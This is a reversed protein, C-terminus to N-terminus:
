RPLPRRIRFDRERSRGSSRRHVQRVQAASMFTRALRRVGFSGPDVIRFPLIGLYSDTGVVGVQGGDFRDRAWEEWQARGRGVVLHQLDVPLKLYLANHDWTSQLSKSVWAAYARAEAHIIGGAFRQDELPGWRRHRFRIAGELPRNWTIRALREFTLLQWYRTPFLSIWGGPEPMPRTVCGSLVKLRPVMLAPMLERNDYWVDGIAARTPPQSSVFVKRGRFRVDSLVYPGPGAEGLRLLDADLGYGAARLEEALDGSSVRGSLYESARESLLVDISSKSSTSM